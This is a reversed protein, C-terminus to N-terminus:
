YMFKESITNKEIYKRNYCGNESVPSKKQVNEVTFNIKVLQIIEIIFNMKLHNLEIEPYKRNYYFFDTKGQQFKSQSSRTTIVVFMEHTFLKM